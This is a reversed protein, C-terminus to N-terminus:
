HALSPTVSTKKTASNKTNKNLIRYALFWSSLMGFVIISISSLPMLIAAIVPSLTGQVAFSLGIINYIFALIYAVYILWRSKKIYDLYNTFNYFHNASFIGDCAPTFNNNNESVVLGVDAQKLAGADNLGDGIMLVVAKEKEQLEKIFALKEKPACDFNLQKKDGFLKVFTHQHFDHDGSLLHLKYNKNLTSLIKEIGNRLIPKHEFFGKSNGDIAVGTGQDTKFVSIQHGQINGKIGQGKIEQFDIVKLLAHKHYYETIQNSRPHSSENALSKVFSAEKDSLNGHFVVDEARETLTGTKDFVIHSVQQLREIVGTNKLYFHQRGLIRLVNGFTFPISLAVACPCAIILVASFANIATDLDKPLWYILTTFAILLIFITFYKGVLLALESSVEHKKKHNFVYENWLQVLYSQVVSKTLQVTISGVTQRGGAYILDGAKVIQPLSEGTVFSYDICAEGDVLIGDAPILEQHRIKLIDGKILQKVSISTEIGNEIKNAAIPFYSQYDREFSINYYIKQQFWKGILLFFILGALSDMYGAGTHTLVEFASRGFLSLMGIAIPVDINLQKHKLGLFANRLYDWGSYLMLPIGLILNLYAFFQFYFHGQAWDVGLYEPFSMFMINGFLFGTVGLKYYLAKSIVPKDKKDLDSLNINPTYGISQLLSAISSLQTEGTQYTIYVEKKLFNVKSQKIGNDLQHLNELLWICSACHIDPIYFTIKSIQQDSFDLLQALVEQDDLYAYKEKQIQKLSVGPNKELDYYQQLGNNQFLEYVTQCGHCCFSQKTSILSEDTCVDGCHTCTIISEKKATDQSM